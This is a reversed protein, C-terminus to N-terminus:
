LGALAMTNQEQALCKVRVTDSEVGMCLHIGAFKISLTVWEMGLTLLFVGLREICFGPYARATRM